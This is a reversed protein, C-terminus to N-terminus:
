RKCELFLRHDFSNRPSSPEFSPEHPVREPLSSAPRQHLNQGFSARSAWKPAWCAHEGKAPLLCAVLTSAAGSLGRPFDLLCLHGNCDGFNGRNINEHCLLIDSGVRPDLRTRRETWVRGTNSFCRELAATSGPSGLIDRALLSLHPFLAQREAWWALPCKEVQITAQQKYERLSARVLHVLKTSTSVVREEVDEPSSGSPGSLLEQAGFAPESPKKVPVADVQWNHEPEVLRKQLVKKM